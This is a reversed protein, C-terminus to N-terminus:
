SAKQNQIMQVFLRQLSANMLMTIVKDMWNIKQKMRTHHKVGKYSAGKISCQDFKFQPTQCSSKETVESSINTPETESGNDSEKSPDVDEDHSELISKDFQAM